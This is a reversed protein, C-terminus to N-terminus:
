PVLNKIWFIMTKSESRQTHVATWPLECLMDPQHIYGRKRWFDDLKLYDEPKELDDEPRLPVCFCIHAYKKHHQVHAERVDFFHHGIGRGRYPKLLVSASFFYYSPISIARELFPHHIEKCEAVLPLGISAGVLTTNDFILVAISEKHAAADKIYKIQQEINTEKLYPYERFVEELLKAISHIYTKIHAGTFSRVHIDTMLSM